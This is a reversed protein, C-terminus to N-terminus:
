KKIEREVEALLSAIDSREREQRIPDVAPIEPMEVVGHAEPVEQTKPAGSASAPSQALPAPSPRRGQIVALENESLAGCKVWLKTLDIVKTPNLQLAIVIEGLTSGGNLMQFVDAAIAGEHREHELRVQTHRGITVRETVRELTITAPFLWGKPTLEGGLERAHLRVWAPSMGLQEAAKHVALTRPPGALNFPAAEQEPTAVAEVPDIPKKERVRPDKPGIRPM